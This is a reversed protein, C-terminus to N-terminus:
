WVHVYHLPMVKDILLAKAQQVKRNSGGHGYRVSEQRGTCSCLPFHSTIRSDSVTITAWYPCLPEQRAEASAARVRMGSLDTFEIEM